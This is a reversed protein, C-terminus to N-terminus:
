DAESTAGHLRFVHKAMDVGIISVEKLALDEQDQRFWQPVYIGDPPAVWGMMLARYYWQAM